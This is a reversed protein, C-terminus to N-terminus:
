PTRPTLRARLEEEQQRLEPTLADGFDEASLIPRIEVERHHGDANPIRKAWAIAEDLSKAKWIWFGSVLDGTVDFPGRTVTPEGDTNFRVRAGRSSPHFGEGTEMLGADALAKNYEGMEVFLQRSPMQGAESAPTAKMLVAFRM